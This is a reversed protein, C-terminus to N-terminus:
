VEVGGAGVVGGVVRDVGQGGECCLSRLVGEEVEDARVGEEAEAAPVGGVAEEREGLPDDDSAGAVRKGFGSKGREGERGGLAGADVDKGSYLFVDGGGGEAVAEAVAVGAEVEQRFGDGGIDGGAM